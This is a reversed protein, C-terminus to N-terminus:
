DGLVSAKLAAQRADLDDQSLGALTPRLAQWQRLYEAQKAIYTAAVTPPVTLSGGPAPKSVVKATFHGPYQSAPLLGPPATPAASPPAAAPVPRLGAPPHTDDERYTTVLPQPVAGTSQSAAIASTTSASTVDGTPPDKACALGLAAGLLIMVSTSVREHM